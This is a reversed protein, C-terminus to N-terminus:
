IPYASFIFLLWKNKRLFFSKDFMCPIFVKLTGNSENNKYNKSFIDLNNYLNM